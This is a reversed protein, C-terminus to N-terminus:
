IAKFFQEKSISHEFLMKKMDNYWCLLYNNFSEETRKGYFCKNYDAKARQQYYEVYNILSYELLNKQHDNKTKTKKLIDLREFILPKYINM